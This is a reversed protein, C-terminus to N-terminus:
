FLYYELSFDWQLGGTTAQKIAINAKMTVNVRHKKM